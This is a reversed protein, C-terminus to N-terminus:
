PIAGWARLRARVREELSPRSGASASLFATYAEVGKARNGVRDYLTGLHYLVDPHGPFRRGAALLTEEAQGFNGSRAQAVALNVRPALAGPSLDAARSFLAAGEEIRGQELRLLGANLLGLAYRPSLSLVKSFVADAEDLRKQRLLALGLANWGEVLGPSSATVERLLLLAEEADGRNLAAVGANFKELVPDIRAGSAPPPADGAIAPGEAAPVSSASVRHSAPREPRRVRSSGAKATPRISAPESVSPMPPVAPTAVPPALPVPSPPPTVPPAPSPIVSSAAPAPPVAPPPGTRRTLFLVGAVGVAFATALIGAIVKWRTGPKGPSGGRLPPLPPPTSSGGHRQAKRLADQLLSVRRGRERAPVLALAM